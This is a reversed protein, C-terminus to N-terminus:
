KGKVGTFDSVDWSTSLKNDKVQYIFRVYKTHWDIYKKSKVPKKKVQFCEKKKPAPVFSIGIDLSLLDKDNFLEKMNRYTKSYIDKTKKNFSITSIKVILKDGEDPCYYTQTSQSYIKTPLGATLLCITLAYKLYKM